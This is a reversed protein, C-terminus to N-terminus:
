PVIMTKGSNKGKMKKKGYRFFRSFASRVSLTERYNRQFIYKKPVDLFKEFPLLHTIARKIAQIKAIGVMACRINLSTRGLLKVHLIPTKKARAQKSDLGKEIM